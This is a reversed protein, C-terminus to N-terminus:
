QLNPVIYNIFIDRLYDCNAKSGSLEGGMNGQACIFILKCRSKETAKQFDYETKEIAWRIINKRIPMNDFDDRTLFRKAEMAYNESYFWLNVYQISGDEKVLDTLFIGTIKESSASSYFAHISEIREIVTSSLDLVKYYSAFAEIM